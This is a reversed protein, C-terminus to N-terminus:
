IGFLLYHYELGLSYLRDFTSAKYDYPDVTQDEDEVEDM